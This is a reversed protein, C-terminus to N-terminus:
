RVQHQNCENKLNWSFFFWEATEFWCSSHSGTRYCLIKLQQSFEASTFINVIFLQDLIFDNPNIFLSQSNTLMLERKEKYLWVADFECEAGCAAVADLETFMAINSLEVAACESLVTMVVIYKM